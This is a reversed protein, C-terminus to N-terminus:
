KRGKKGKKGKKAKAKKAQEKERKRTVEADLVNDLWRMYKEMGLKMDNFYKINVDPQRQEIITAKILRHTKIQWAEANAKDKNHVYSIFKINYKNLRHKLLAAKERKMVVGQEEADALDKAIKLNDNMMDNLQKRLVPRKERKFDQKIQKATLGEGLDGYSDALIRLQNMTQSAM